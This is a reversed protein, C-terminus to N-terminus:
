LTLGRLIELSYARGGARCSSLWPMSSRSCCFYFRSFPLYRAQASSFRRPNRRSPRKGSKQRPSASKRDCSRRCMAFSARCFTQFPDTEQRCIAGRCGKIRLRQQLIGTGGLLRNSRRCPTVPRPAFSAKMASYRKKMVSQRSSSSGASFTTWGSGSSKM